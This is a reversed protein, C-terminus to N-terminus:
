SLTERHLRPQGPVQKTSWAPRYSLSGGAEAEQTSPNFANVVLQWSSISNRLPMHVPPSSFLGVGLLGPTAMNSV